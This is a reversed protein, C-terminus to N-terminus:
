QQLLDRQTGASLPRVAGNMECALPAHGARLVNIAGVVDANEKTDANPVNSIHKRKDTKQRFIDAIRVLEARIKPPVLGLLGGREELKYALM